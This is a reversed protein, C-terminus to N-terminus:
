RHTWRRRMVSRDFCTRSLTKPIDRHPDEGRTKTDIDPLRKLYDHVTAADPLGAPVRWTAAKMLAARAAIAQEEREAVVGLFRGDRAVAIVGPMKRVSADDLRVLEAGYSPPRVIRGHVMGPLRM